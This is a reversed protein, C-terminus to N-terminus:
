PAVDREGGTAVRRCRETEDLDCRLAIVRLDTEPDVFDAIRIGDPPQPVVIEKADLRGSWVRWISQGYTPEGIDSVSTDPVRIDLLSYAGLDGFSLIFPDHLGHEGVPEVAPVLSTILPPQLLPPLEGAALGDVFLDTRYDSDWAWIQTAVDPDEPLIFAGLTFALDVGTSHRTSHVFLGVVQFESPSQMTFVRGYIKQGFLPGVPLPLIAESEVYPLSEALDIEIYTDETLAPLDVVQAGYLPQTMAINSHRRYSYEKGFLRVPTEAPVMLEFDPGVENSFTAHPHTASVEFRHAEDDVNLFTGSVRVLREPPPPPPAVLRLPFAGDELAFRSLAEADLDVWSLLAYGDAQATVALSGRSWVVGDVTIRGAPDAVAVRREGGPLDVTVEAGAVPEGTSRDEIQFVLPAAVAADGADSISGDCGAVALAAFLGWYSRARM